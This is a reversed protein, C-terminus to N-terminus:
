EGGPKVTTPLLRTPDPMREPPVFEMSKSKPETLTMSFQDPMIDVNGASRNVIVLQVAIHRGDDFVAASISARGASDIKMWTHGQHDFTEMGPLWSITEPSSASTQALTATSVLLFVIGPKMVAGEWIVGARQVPSRGATGRPRRETNSQLESRVFDCVPM